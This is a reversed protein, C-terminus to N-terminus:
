AKTGKIVGKPNNIKEVIKKAVKPTEEVKFDDGWLSDMM